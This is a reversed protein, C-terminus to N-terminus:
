EDIVARDKFDRRPNFGAVLENSVRRSFGQKVISKWNSTRIGPMKPWRIVCVLFPGAVKYSVTGDSVVHLTYPLTRKQM